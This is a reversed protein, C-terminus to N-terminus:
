LEPLSSWHDEVFYRVTAWAGAHVEEAMRVFPGGGYLTLDGHLALALVYALYIGREQFWAYEPKRKHSQTAFQLITDGNVFLSKYLPQIISLMAAWNGQYHRTDYLGAESPFWYAWAYHMQGEAWDLVLNAKSSPWAKVKVVRMRQWCQDKGYIDSAGDVEVQAIYETFVPFMCWLVDDSCFLGNIRSNPTRGGRPNWWLPGTVENWENKVWPGSNDCSKMNGDLAKWLAM